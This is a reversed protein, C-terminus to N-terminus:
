KFTAMVHRAGYLKSINILNGLSEFGHGESIKIKKSWLVLALETKELDGLNWLHVFFIELRDLLELVEVGVVQPHIQLGDLAEDLGVGQVHLDDDVWLGELATNPDNLKLRGNASGHLAELVRATDVNGPVLDM